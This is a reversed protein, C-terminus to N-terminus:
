QLGLGAGAPGGCDYLACEYLPPLLPSCKDVAHFILRRNQQSVSLSPAAPPHPSVGDSISLPPRSIKSPNRTAKRLHGSSVTREFYTSSPCRSFSVFPAFLDGGRVTHRMAECKEKIKSAILGALARDHGAWIGVETIKDNLAAVVVKIKTKRVKGDIVGGDQAKSRASRVIDVDFGLLVTFSVDWTKEFPTEVAEQADAKKIEKQLEAGKIALGAGGFAATALPATVLACGHLLPSAAAFLILLLALRINKASTIAGM